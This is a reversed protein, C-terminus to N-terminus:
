RSLVPKLQAYIRQTLGQQWYNSAALPESMPFSFRFVSVLGLDLVLVMVLVSELALVTRVPYM